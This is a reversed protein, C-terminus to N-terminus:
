FPSNLNEEFPIEPNLIEEIINELEELFQTMIEETILTNLGSRQATFNLKLFGSQLNKFSVIGGEFNNFEFMKQQTILFAYLMIQLVKGHKQTNAKILSFDDLKLNTPLVKGTKYDIIRGVNNLLDVRDVIGKIKIPYDLNKGKFDAEFEREIALITLTNGQKLLNLEQELFQQIYYKSVEFILKNKGQRLTGKKYIKEYEQQLEETYCNLMQNVANITLQKNEFPKYLNKLVEHIATGMTNSEITEELEVVDRIKLVKQQYFNIPNYLYNTLASPSIGLTFVEKLQQLVNPTKIITVPEKKTSSVLPAVTIEVPLNYKIQLQTLFRSKEGSGFGDTETNYILFVKSARLLLRQFHYSFIADKEQYTPLDFHKKVDFPIFSFANKSGPLVGENVSTVIVTEFDLVRTELMGMLQLGQLPEGKFSLKENKLIIEYLLHLAKLNSIHKYKKNLTDLQQFVVLFRFFYEKEVGSAMEQLNIILSICAEIIGNVTKPLQFPNFVVNLKEIEDFSLDGKLENVSVFLKNQSKIKYIIKQILGSNIKNLFPDVLVNLVDKYYFEKEKQKQFKEQNLYLKFINEFFASVPLDILACGMTINVANVNNPLSNLAPELLKEDGLVLATKSFDNIQSLIEGAYKIQSVNKPAGIIQIERSKSVSNGQLKFENQSYYTWEKTYKRLFIGAENDKDFFIADADWYVAALNQHLLSQFIHEEAKNLANFGIFYTFHNKNNATYFELNETAERYILGQYGTKNLKLKKYLSRYYIGLKDFFALYDIALTSPKQEKFWLNLKKIDKLSEFFITTNILYSDIENFDNLAITAWQAFVEFPQCDQKNNNLEKYVSYFEFLLQTNDILSIDALEQIYDQISFIHPLFAPKSLQNLFEEKLFVCARRSPLVFNINKYDSHKTLIESVVQSLFSKM